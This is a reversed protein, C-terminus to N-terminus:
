NKTQDNNNIPIKKLYNIRSPIMYNPLIKILEYKIEREKKKCNFVWGTIENINNKKGYTVISGKIKNLSNLAKEIEDLEIRHGLHKIQNDSRSVFYILRNKKEQYVIDGTMYVIDKNKKKFHNQVFRKKTEPKNNYYGQGVNPGCLVLEGKEGFKIKKNKNLIYYDFKKIMKKGLPAYKTIEKKSFDFKSIKYNSCICTCETPGYVNYIKTRSGIIDFM